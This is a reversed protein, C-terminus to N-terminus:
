DAEQLDLGLKSNWADTCSPKGEKKKLFTLYIEKSDVQTIDKFVNKAIEIHPLEQNNIVNRPFSCESLMKRWERPIAM